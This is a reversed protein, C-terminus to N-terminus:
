VPLFHLHPLGPFLAIILRICTFLIAIFGYARSFVGWTQCVVKVRFNPLPMQEFIWNTQHMRGKKVVVAAAKQFFPLKASSTSLSILLVQTSLLGLPVAAVQMTQPLPPCNRKLERELHSCFFRLPPWSVLRYYNQAHTNVFEISLPALDFLESLM